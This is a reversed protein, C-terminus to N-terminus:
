VSMKTAKSMRERTEVKIKKTESYNLQLWIMKVSNGHQMGFCVSDGPNCSPAEQFFWYGGRLMCPFTTQREFRLFQM